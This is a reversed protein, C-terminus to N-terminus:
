VEGEQWESPTCAGMATLDPDKNVEQQIAECAEETPFGTFNLTMNVGSVIFVAVFFWTM